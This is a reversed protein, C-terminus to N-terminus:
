EKWRMDAGCNPCYKFLSMEEELVGLDTTGIYVRHECNSCELKSGVIKWKGKPRALQENVIPLVAEYCDKVVPMVIEFIEKLDSVDITTQENVLGMAFDIGNSFEIEEEHEHFAEHLSGLLRDADILRM